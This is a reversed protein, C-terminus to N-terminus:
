SFKRCQSVFIKGRFIEISGGEKGYVKESGSVKQCVACFPEGVFTKSVTLCFFKSQFEQNEGKKDVFKNAVLFKSFCLM